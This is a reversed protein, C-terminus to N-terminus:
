RYKLKYFIVQISQRCPHGQTIPLYITADPILAAM